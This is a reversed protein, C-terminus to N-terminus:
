KRWSNIFKKYTTKTIIGRKVLDRLKSNFEEFGATNGANNSALLLKASDFEKNTDIGTGQTVELSKIYDKTINKLVNLKKKRLGTKTLKNGDKTYFEELGKSPAEPLKEPLQNDLLDLLEDQKMDDIEESTLDALKPKLTVQSQLNELIQNLGSIKEDKETNLKQIKSNNDVLTEL